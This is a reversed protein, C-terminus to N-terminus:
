VAVAGEHGDGELHRAGRRDLCHAPAIANANVFLASFRLAIARLHGSFVIFHVTVTRSEGTGGRIARSIWSRNINSFHM